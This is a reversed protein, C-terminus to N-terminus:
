TTSRGEVPVAADIEDVYTQRARGYRHETHWAGERLSVDSLDDVPLCRWEGGPELKTGLAHPCMERRRDKYTAHVQLKTQIAQRILSYDDASM